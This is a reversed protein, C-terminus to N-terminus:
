PSAPPLGAVERILRFGPSAATPRAGPGSITIMRHAPSAAHAVGPALRPGAAAAATAPDPNTRGWGDLPDRVDRDIEGRGDLAADSGTDAGGPGPADVAGADPDFSGGGSDAAPWPPQVGPVAFGADYAPFEGICDFCGACLTGSCGVVTTLAGIRWLERGLAGLRWLM